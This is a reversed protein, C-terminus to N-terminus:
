LKFCQACRMGNLALPAVCTSVDPHGCALLWLCYLWSHWHKMVLSIANCTKRSQSVWLYFIRPLGDNHSGHSDALLHNLIDVLKVCQVLLALTQLLRVLGTRSLILSRIPPSHQLWHEYTQLVRKSDSSLNRRSSTPDMVRVWIRKETLRANHVDTLTKVPQHRVSILKSGAPIATGAPRTSFQLTDTLCSITIPWYGPDVSYQTGPPRHLDSFLYHLSSRMQPFIQTIWLALGLFKELTKKAIRPHSLMQSILELLKSRKREQLYIAGIGFNFRWGIWDLACHLDAKRWSIPLGFVQMLSCVFAATLPLVDKRQILLFDDVFLFLAHAVFIAQHLFRVWFSGLRGWWHASFVAGFPAVKYFYLSNRHSFGLLGRHSEKIEFTARAWAVIRPSRAQYQRLLAGAHGHRPWPGKPVPFLIRSTWEGILAWALCFDVSYQTCTAVLPSLALGSQVWQQMEQSTLDQSSLTRHLFGTLLRLFEQVVTESAAALLSDFETDPLRRCRRTWEAWDFISPHSSSFVVVLGANLESHPETVLLVGQGQRDADVRHQTYVVDPRNVYDRKRPHQGKGAGPPFRTLYGEKWLDAAEFLTIPLCDSDLLIFNIGPFIAVLAALVFTGAWTPHVRHLGTEETAPFFLLETKEQQPGVLQVRSHWWAVAAPWHPLGDQATEHAKLNRTDVMVYVTHFATLYACEKLIHRFIEAWLPQGTEGNTEYTLPTHTEFRASPDGVVFRPFPDFCERGQGDGPLPENM